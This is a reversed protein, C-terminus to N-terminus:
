GLNELFLFYGLVFDGLVCFRRVCVLEGLLFIKRLISPFVSLLTLDRTCMWFLGMCIWLMGALM